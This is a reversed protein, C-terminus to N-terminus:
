QKISLYSDRLSKKEESFSKIKGLTACAQIVDSVNQTHNINFRITHDDIVDYQNVHQAMVTHVTTTNLPEAYVITYNITKNNNEIFDAMNGYYKLAGHDIYLVKNCYKELLNLDHSSVIAAADREKVADSLYSLFSEASETDLGTTPEDLLYFAPNHAISRAIQVRQQQGGSLQDVTLHHKDELNVIKLAETALHTAEKNKYGALLTGLVVNDLVTLYWDVVQQQPSFGLFSYPHKSPLYTDNITVTGSQYSQVGSITNILTSKGSGNSGVLAVFDGSDIDFTIDRIGKQNDYLQTVHQISLLTSTNM